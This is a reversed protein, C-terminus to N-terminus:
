MSQATAYAGEDGQERPSLKDFANATAQFEDLIQPNTVAIWNMFKILQQNTHGLRLNDAKLSVLEDQIVHFNSQTLSCFEQLRRVAISDGGGYSAEVPNPLTQLYMTM